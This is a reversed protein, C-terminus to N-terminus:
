RDNARRWKGKWFTVLRRKRLSQLRRDTARFSDRLHMVAADIIFFQCKGEDVAKLIAADLAEYPNAKQSNTASM